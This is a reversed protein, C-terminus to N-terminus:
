LAAIEDQLSLGADRLAADVVDHPDRGRESALVQTPLPLNVHRWPPPDSAAFLQHHSAGAGIIQLIDVHGKRESREGTDGPYRSRPLACQDVLNQIFCHCLLQVPPALACM